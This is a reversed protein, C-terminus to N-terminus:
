IIAIIKIANEMDLRTHTLYQLGGIMTRYKNKEVAPTEDKNSLKKGTIMPTGVPKCSELGFRKLLYKLYKDQSIVM